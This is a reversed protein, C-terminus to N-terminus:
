SVEVLTMPCKHVVGTQHLEDLRARVRDQEQEMRQFRRMLEGSMVMSMPGTKLKSMEQHLRDAADMLSRAEPPAICRPCTENWKTGGVVGHPVTKDANWGPSPPGHLGELVHTKCLPMPESSKHGGDCRTGYVTGGDNAARFGYYGGKCVLLYRGIPKKDCFWMHQGLHNDPYLGGALRIKSEAGYPDCFGTLIGTGTM